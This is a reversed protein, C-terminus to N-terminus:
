ITVFTDFNGQSILVYTNVAKTCYKMDMVTTKFIIGYALSVKRLATESM